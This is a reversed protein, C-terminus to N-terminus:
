RTRPLDTRYTNPILGMIQGYTAPGVVYSSIVVAVRPLTWEFFFIFLKSNELCPPPTLVFKGWKRFKKIKIKEHGLEHLDASFFKEEYPPLYGRRVVLGQFIDM